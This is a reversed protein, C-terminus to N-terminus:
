GTGTSRLVVPVPVADGKFTTDRFKLRAKYDDAGVSSSITFFIITAGDCELM